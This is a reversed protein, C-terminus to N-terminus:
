AALRKELAAIADQMLRRPKWVRGNATRDNGYVQAPKFGLQELVRNITASRSGIAKPKSVGLAKMIAESETGATGGDRIATLFKLTSPPAWDPVTVTAPEPARPSPNRKFKASNTRKAKRPAHVLLIEQVSEDQQKASTKPRLEKLLAVADAASEATIEIGDVVMKISM